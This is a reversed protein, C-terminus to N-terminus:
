ESTGMGSRLAQLMKVYGVPPPAEIVRTRVVMARTSYWRHEVYCSGNGVSQNKHAPHCEFTNRVHEGKDVTGPGDSVASGSRRFVNNLFRRIGSELQKYFAGIDYM